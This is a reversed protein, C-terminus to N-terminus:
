CFSLRKQINGLGTVVVVLSIDGKKELEEESLQSVKLSVDQIATADWTIYFKM